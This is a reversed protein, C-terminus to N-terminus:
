ALEVEAGGRVVALKGVSSVRGDQVIGGHETLEGGSVAHFPYTVEM